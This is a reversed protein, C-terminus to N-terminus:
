TDAGQGQIGLEWFHSFYLATRELNVSDPTYSLPVTSGKCAGAMPNLEWCGFVSDLRHWETITACFPNCHTILKLMLKLM